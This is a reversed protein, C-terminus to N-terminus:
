LGMQKRMEELEEIQGMDMWAREGIPYVAVKEGSLRYKEVIDPLGTEMGDPMEEIVRPEVLYMGTNVMFSFEPKEEM